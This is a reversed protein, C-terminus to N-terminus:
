DHAKPPFSPVIARVPRVTLGNALLLSAMRRERQHLIMEKGNPSMACFSTSITPGLGDTLSRKKENLGELYQKKESFDVGPKYPWVM